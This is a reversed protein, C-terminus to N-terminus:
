RSSGCVMEVAAFIRSSTCSSSGTIGGATPGRWLTTREGGFRPSPRSIGARLRVGGGAVAFDGLRYRVLPMARNNLDTLVVEGTEGPRAPEGNEKLLEIYLDAAMLHLGGQECTYAIPGAEGCGYEIQVPAGFVRELQARQPDTFAESTAIISKLPLQTGDYGRRELFGAFAELMSVYGHLYERNSCVCRQWYRELDDDSFAFASFRIRNMAYDAARTVLRRRHGGARGLLAGRPRGAEVGFWGYALWMAAREAATARRDKLVTVPQGTSGGHGQSENAWRGTSGSQTRLATAAVGQRDPATRPNAGAPAGSGAVAPWRDRLVASRAGAWDLIAALRLEQYTESSNTALWELRKLEGCGDPLSGEGILRLVAPYIVRGHLWRGLRPTRERWNM